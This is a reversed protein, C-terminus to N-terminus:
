TAGSTVSELIMSRRSCDFVVKFCLLFDNGINGDFEESALLGDTALSALL